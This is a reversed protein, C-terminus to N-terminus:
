LWPLTTLQLFSEKIHISLNIEQRSNGDAVAEVNAEEMGEWMGHYMSIIEEAVIISLDMTAVMIIDGKVIEVVVVIICDVGQEEPEVVQMVYQTDGEEMDVAVMRVEMVITIMVKMDVEVTILADEVDGIPVAVLIDEIDVLIKKHLQKQLKQM